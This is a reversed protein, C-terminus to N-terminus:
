YMSIDKEARRATMWLHIIVMIISASVIACAGQVNDSQCWM